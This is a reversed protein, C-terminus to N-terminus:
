HALKVSVAPEGPATCELVVEFVLGGNFGLESTLESCLKAEVRDLYELLDVDFRLRVVIEQPTTFMLNLIIKVTM